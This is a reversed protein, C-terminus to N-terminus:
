ADRHRYLNNALIYEVVADPVLFRPELGARVHERIQTASLEIPPMDLMTFGQGIAERVDAETVGPRPVVAITATDLVDSARHWTPIGVAADAGLVLVTEGEIAELTDITYTPGDRRMEVDDAALYPAEAAALRCMAWRHTASTVVKTAKQWPTRAPVLRVQELDLQEYAAHAAALHAVHPPDFTGGLLGFVDTLM